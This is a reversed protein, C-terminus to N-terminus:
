IRAKYPDSHRALYKAAVQNAAMHDLGLRLVQGFRLPRPDRAPPLKALFEPMFRAAFDRYAQAFRADLLNPGDGDPKKRGIFHWFYVPYNQSMLPLRNVNQWNWCPALQAFKGQLAMNTLSQDSHVIAAPHSRYFDFARHDLDQAVFVATDILQVGGNAYPLAPLGLRMFERAHHVAEFLYPADLVAGLAHPGIDVALLRNLDGGEVFIDCDLYLIRRYRGGLERPLLLRYLPARSGTYSRIDVHDPLAGHRHFVIGLPRAWDPPELEDPSAIVFDFKRAPNHFDIQRIMFLALPFFKRDCSFVVACDHREPMPM